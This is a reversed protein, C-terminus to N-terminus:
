VLAGLLNKPSLKECLVENLKDTVSREIQTQVYISIILRILSQYAEEDIAGKKHLSTIGSDVPLTPLFM